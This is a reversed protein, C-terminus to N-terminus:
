TSAMFTSRAPRTAGAKGTPVCGPRVLHDVGKDAYPDVGAVLVVDRFDV